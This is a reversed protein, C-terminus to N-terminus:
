TGLDKEGALGMSLPVLLAVAVAAMLATVALHAAPSAAPFPFFFNIVGCSNTLFKKNLHLIALARVCLCVFFFCM